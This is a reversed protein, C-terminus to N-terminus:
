TLLDTIVKKPIVHAQGDDVGVKIIPEEDDAPTELGYPQVKILIYYERNQDNEITGSLELKRTRTITIRM